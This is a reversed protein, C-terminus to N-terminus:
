INLRGHTGQHCADLDKYELSDLRQQLAMPFMKIGPCGSITLSRLSSYDQPGSPLSVLRKCRYLHLRVLAPLQIVCSELSRLEPCRGVILVELADLQGSLLRLKSCDDIEITKLSSPLNHLGTLGHCSYITLSELSSPLLAPTDRVVVSASQLDEQVARSAMADTNFGQNGATFIKDQQKGSISELKDCQVVLMEKLAPTSFVEVLNECGIIRVFELRPLLKSRESTAQEHACAVRYGTLGRCKQIVLMRLSVLIEFEKEPWYVLENCSYVSLDQLQGFWSCSQFSSILQNGQSMMNLVRLKPARPLTTLQPCNDIYVTDLLPFLQQEVEIGLAAGWRELSCVNVLKLDKLEPFAGQLATLTKCGDIHLIELQPFAVAEGQM